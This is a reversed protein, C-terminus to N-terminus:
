SKIIKTAEELVNDIYSKNSLENFNLQYTMCELKVYSYIINSIENNLINIFRDDVNQNLITYYIYKSIAPILKTNIGVLVNDMNLTGHIIENQMFLKVLNVKITFLIGELILEKPMDINMNDNNYIINQIAEEKIIALPNSSTLSVKM